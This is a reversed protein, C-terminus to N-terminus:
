LSVVEYNISMCFGFWAMSASGGSAVDPYIAGLVALDSLGVLSAQKRM